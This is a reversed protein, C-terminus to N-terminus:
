PKVDISNSYGDKWAKVFARSWTLRGDKKKKDLYPCDSILLGNLRANVGKQYAGIITKNWGAFKDTM